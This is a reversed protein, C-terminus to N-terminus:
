KIGELYVSGFRRKLNAIKKDFKWKNVKKFGGGNLLSILKEYDYAWLHSTYKKDDDQDRFHYNLLDIYTNIHKIFNRKSYWNKITKKYFIPNKEIYNKIMLQSDPVGIILRGGNKLIRFCESIFKKASVPYDLHELFHEVFIIISCKDSLPIGERIDYIIDAPLNIDINLYNNLIHKGGGIQIKETNKKTILKKSGNIHNKYLNIEKLIQRLSRRLGHTSNESVLLQNAIKELEWIKKFFSKNM